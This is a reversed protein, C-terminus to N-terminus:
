AAWAEPHDTDFGMNRYIALKNRLTRLSIGLKKAAHTKNNRTLILTAAILKREMEECTPLSALDFAPSDRNPRSPLGLDHVDLFREQETLIVAREITNQLERVNGPWRYARLHELCETTVGKLKKGHKRCFQKFFYMVLEDIDSVRTRLPPLNIPVVNLRYYLDERFRGQRVEDLLDRNTSAIIRADMRIVKNGGVREFEKEQLVRLLKVQLSLPIEAIEDLLITGGQATEFRGLRRSVAGTFAGKEHGFFEAELLTEPIAACNIRVFPQSSRPSHQQITHAVVEKGTGSEGQILVTAETQGVKKVLELVENMIPSSGWVMAAKSPQNQAQRLYVNEHELQLYRRIRQLSYELEAPSFPKILYDMLGLRLAEVANEATAYGTMVVCPLESNAQRLDRLFDLGSGDPLKLDCLVLDFSEKSIVERAQLLSSVALPTYDLASLQAMLTARVAEEDDIILIRDLAM